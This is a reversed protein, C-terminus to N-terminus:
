NYTSCYTNQIVITRVTRMLIHSSQSSYDLKRRRWGPRENFDGNRRIGGSQVVNYHALRPIQCLPNNRSAFHLFNQPFHLNILSPPSFPRPFHLPQLNPLHHSMRQTHILNRSNNCPTSTYPIIHLFNTRTTSPSYPLFM